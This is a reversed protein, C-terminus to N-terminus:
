WFPLIFIGSWSLYALSANFDCVRVHLQEYCRVFFDSLYDIEKSFILGWAGKSYHEQGIWLWHLFWGGWFGHKKQSPSFSLFSANKASPFHMSKDSSSCATSCPWHCLCGLHGVRLWAVQCCWVKAWTWYKWTAFSSVVATTPIIPITLSECHQCAKIAAFVPWMSKRIGRCWIYTGRLQELTGNDSTDGSLNRKATVWSWSNRGTVIM